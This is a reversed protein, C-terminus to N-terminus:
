LGGTSPLHEWRTLTRQDAVRGAFKLQQVAPFSHPPRWLRRVHKGEEGRVSGSGAQLATTSAAAGAAWRQDGARWAKKGCAKRAVTRWSSSALRRRAAASPPLQRGRSASASTARWRPAAGSDYQICGGGRCSASAYSLQRLM